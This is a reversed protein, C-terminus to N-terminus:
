LGLHLVVINCIQLMVIEGKLMVNKRNIIFVKVMIVHFVIDSKRYLNM